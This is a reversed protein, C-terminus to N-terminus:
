INLNIISYGICELPELIKFLFRNSLLTERVLNKDGRQGMGVMVPLWQLQSVAIRGGLMEKHM